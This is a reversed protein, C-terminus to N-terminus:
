KEIFRCKPYNDCGRFQGYRGSKLVINGGCKPCINAYIKSNREALDKRISSIHEKRNKKNDINLSLLKEYIKEKLTDSITIFSWKKITNILDSAYVVDTRTQVNLSAKDTFVIISIFNINKYERLSEEIVKIHWYNQKIPNRLKEKRRYIVQTWFDNNEHGFIWGQYNKTEIVFVGYNSIVVHDIQATKTGSKLMINNIVKYENDLGSLISSVIKEGFHGKIKPLYFKILSIILVFLLINWIDLFLRM